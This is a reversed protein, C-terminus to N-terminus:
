NKNRLGDIMVAALLLAGKAAIQWFSQVNLLAMGNNMIGIILVGLFTKRVSGFGGALSTGGLLVATIADMPYSEGINPLAAGGIGIVIIGAISAMFGSIVFLAIGVKNINIGALRAAARNGGSAYIHRGFVTKQSIFEFVVFSAILVIISVPIGVWSARGLYVLGPVDIFYALGDTLVFCLGRVVNMMGLTVIFPSLNFKVIILGNLFGVGVGIAIGALMGIYWPYGNIVVLNAQISGTMAVIAGVTLDPGRGILALTMATAIIGIVSVSTLVNTFNRLNLFHPSAISFYIFMSILIVFLGSSSILSRPNKIRDKTELLKSQFM